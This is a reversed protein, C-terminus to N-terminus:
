PKKEATKRLVYTDDYSLSYSYTYCYCCESTPSFFYDSVAPNIKLMRCVHQVKNKNKNQKNVGNLSLPEGLILTLSQMHLQKGQVKM